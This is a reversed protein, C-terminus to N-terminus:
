HLLFDLLDEAIKAVYFIFGEICAADALNYLDVLAVRFGKLENEVVEILKDEAAAFLDSQSEFMSEDSSGKDGFEVFYVRLSDSIEHFILEVKFQFIEM